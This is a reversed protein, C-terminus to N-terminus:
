AIASALMRIGEMASEVDGATSMHGLSLRLTGGGRETGLHSHILAACHFGSRAEIGLESDLLMAMEHCDFQPSSLSIVPM